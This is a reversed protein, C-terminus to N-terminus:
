MNTVSLTRTFRPACDDGIRIEALLDNQKKACKM